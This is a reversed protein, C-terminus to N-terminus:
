MGPKAGVEPKNVTGGIKVDIMKAILRNPNFYKLPGWPSDKLYFRGSLNLGGNQLQISGKLNLAADDGEIKLPNLLAKGGTCRFNAEVRNLPYSSFGIGLLDLGESLIGLLRITKLTPDSLNVQGEGETAWPASFDFSGKYLVTLQSPDAKAEAPPSGTIQGILTEVGSRSWERVSLELQNQSALDGKLSLSAKGGSVLGTAEISLKRADEAAQTVTLNLQDVKVGALSSTGASALTARLPRGPGLAVRLEADGFSLSNLRTALAPDYLRVACAPALNGQMDIQPLGQWEPKRWDWCVTGRATGASEGSLEGELEDISVVSEDNTALVRLSVLRFRTEMFGFHALRARVQTRTSAVDGWRGEVRVDAHPRTPRTSLDFRAWLDLWWKGLLANLCSPNFPQGESSNLRIVYNDGPRLGGEIEGRIGALDLRTLALRNHRLDLLLEGRFGARAQEPRVVAPRLDGWGMESVAFSARAVALGDASWDLEGGLIEIRGCLDIGAARAQQALPAIRTLDSAALAATADRLRVAGGEMEVRGAFRSEATEASLEIGVPRDRSWEGRVSVATVELGDIRGALLLARFRGQEGLNVWAREASAGWGRLGRLRVEAHLRGDWRANIEGSAAQVPLAGLATTNEVFAGSVSSGKPNAVLGISGNMSRLTRLCDSALARNWAPLDPTTSTEATSESPLTVSAHLTISGARAAAQVRVNGDVPALRVVFDDIAAGDTGLAGRGRVQLGLIRPSGTVFGRWDPLVDVDATLEDEPQDSNWVHVGSLRLRGRRDITAERCEFDLRGAAVDALASLVGAPLRTPSPHAIVWLVALQTVLLLALLVRVLLTIWSRRTNTSATGM